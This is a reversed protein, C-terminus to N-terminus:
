DVNCLSSIGECRHKKECHSWDSFYSSRCCCCVLLVLYRARDLGSPGRRDRRGIWRNIQM